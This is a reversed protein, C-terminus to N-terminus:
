KIVTGIRSADLGAGGFDWNMWVVVAKGVINHEPLFHTPWYRSDESNDRNDGMMFYSDPPVTWSGNAHQFMPPLDLQLIRHTKGPLSERLERAGTMSAGNGKGVFAGISVTEVPQGNISLTYDQYTITDGPLGIVRKIWTQDPHHPPHFVVVDGRQPEGIPVIKTDLVPIRLGYAFKNVLIFDGILLTPMMSGSPIRYPEGLFSRVLLIVLIVPFFSAAYEVLVPERRRGGLGIPAADLGDETQTTEFDPLNRQILSALKRADGANVTTISLNEPASKIGVTRLDNALALQRISEAGAALRSDLNAQRVANARRRGPAFLLRDLLWIGGTLATLLVFILAFDIRM